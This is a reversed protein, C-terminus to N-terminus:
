YGLVSLVARASVYCGDVIRIEGWLDSANPNADYISLADRMGDVIAIAGHDSCEKQAQRLTVLAEETDEFTM